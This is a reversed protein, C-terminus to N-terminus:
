RLRETRKSLICRKRFEDTFDSGDCDYERLTPGYGPKGAFRGTGTATEFVRFIYAGKHGNCRVYVGTVDDPEYRSSQYIIKM